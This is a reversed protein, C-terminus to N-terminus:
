LFRVISRGSYLDMKYVSAPTTIRYPGKGDVRGNQHEAETYHASMEYTTDNGAYLSCHAIRTPDDLRHYCIIDGPLANTVNLPIDKGAYAIVMGDNLYSTAVSSRSPRLEYEHYAIYVMGSCDTLRYQPDDDLRHSGNSYTWDGPNWRNGPVGYLYTECIDSALFRPFKNRLLLENKTVSLPAAGFIVVRTGDKIVADICLYTKDNTVYELYPHEETVTGDTNYLMAHMGWLNAKRPTNPDSEATDITIHDFSILHTQAAIDSNTSNRFNTSIFLSSDNKTRWCVPDVLVMATESTLRMRLLGPGSNGLIAMINDIQDQYNVGQGDELEKIKKMLWDLNLTHLDTYPFNEFAM